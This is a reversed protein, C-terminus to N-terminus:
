PQPHKGRSQVRTWAPGHPHATAAAPKNLFGFEYGRKSIYFCDLGAEKMLHVLQVGEEFSRTPFNYHIEVLLQSFSCNSQLIDPIAEFESGEIDIKLVDLHTHGLKKMISELRSVPIEIAKHKDSVYGVREQTFNFRGPYKPPFVSLSGDKNSLGLEHLHFQRPLSMKRLMRISEPTPDFGHVELGFEEIMKVDFSVDSGLGFSYALGGPRLLGPLVHWGDWDPHGGLPAPRFKADPFIGRNSLKKRRLRAKLKKFAM